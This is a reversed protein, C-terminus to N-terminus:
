GRDDGEEGVKLREWILTKEFSVTRGILHGFDPTEAEADTRGIFM